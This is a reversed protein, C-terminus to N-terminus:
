RGGKGKILAEPHRELYDAWNRLSQAAYASDRLLRNLDLVTQSDPSILMNVNKGTQSVSNLTARLDGLTLRTDNMLDPAGRNLTALFADTQELVKNLNMAIQLIPLNQLTRSLETLSSPITPIEPLNGAGQLVVPTGPFFSLEIMMQSTLLSQMILRARLGKEIMSQFIEQQSRRHSFRLKWLKKQKKQEVFNESNIEVTVPIQFTMDQLNAALTVSTVRGVPVGNFVVPAGVSLGKVSGEFYMVYKTTRTSWVDRKILVFTGTLLVFALVIFIGILRKNPQTTM